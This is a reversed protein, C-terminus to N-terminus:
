AAAARAFRLVKAQPMGEDLLEYVLAVVEARKSPPLSLGQKGLAEDVLELAIILTDSKLAQSPGQDADGARKGKGLLLWEPQVDLVGCIRLLLAAKVHDVQVKANLWNSITAETSGAKAALQAANIRARTM